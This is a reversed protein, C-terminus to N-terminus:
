LNRDYNFVDSLPHRKREKFKTIDNTFGEPLTNNYSMARLTNMLPLMDSYVDTPMPDGDLTVKSFVLAGNRDQGYECYMLHLREDGFSNRNSFYITASNGTEGAALIDVVSPYEVFKEIVAACIGYRWSAKKPAFFFSYIGYGALAIVLIVAAAILRGKNKDLFSQKQTPRAM